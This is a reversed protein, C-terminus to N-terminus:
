MRRDTSAQKLQNLSPRRRIDIITIVCDSRSYAGHNVSAGPCLRPPCNCRVPESSVRPQLHHCFSLARAAFSSSAWVDPQGDKRAGSRIKGSVQSTDGLPEPSFNHPVLICLWAAQSLSFCFCHGGCYLVDPCRKDNASCFVEDRLDM